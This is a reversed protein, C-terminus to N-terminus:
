REDDDKGLSSLDGKDARRKHIVMNHGCEENIYADGHSDTGANIRYLHKNGYLFASVRTDDMYISIPYRRRGGVSTSSVELRELRDMLHRLRSFEDENRIVFKEIPIDKDPCKTIPCRVSM